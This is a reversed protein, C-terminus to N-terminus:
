ICLSRCRSVLHWSGLLGHLNWSPLPPLGSILLFQLYSVAELAGCLTQVLREELWSGELERWGGTCHTHGPLSAPFRAVM